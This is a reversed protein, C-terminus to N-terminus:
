SISESYVRNYITLIKSLSYNEVIRQRNKEGLVQRKDNYSLAILKRAISHYDKPETIYSPQGLILEADGAKTSVCPLGISMAEGLVNPFGETISHLCFADAASLICSIDSREGLVIFGTRQEETIEFIDLSIERGILVGKIKPNSERAICISKIFTKHDKAPVSRGVSFIAFDDNSLEMEVRYTARCSQSFAYKDTDFGNGIVNSNKPNFGAKLHEKQSSYSVYIITKPIVYSLLGCTRRFIYNGIGGAKIHTNRINWIINKIGLTKAALGGFFDAHYMWTQVIDPQQKKLEARLKFFTKPVSTAGGMGLAMVDYGAQKLEFGIPGLQTLSIISHEAGDNGNLGEILRKLMLEAGGVDLGIIVHVIRM